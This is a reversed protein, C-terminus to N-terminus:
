SLFSDQTHKLSPVTREAAPILKGIRQMLSQTSIVPLMPFSSSFCMHWRPIHAAVVSRGSYAPSGIKGEGVQEEGKLHTVQRWVVQKCQQQKITRENQSYQEKNQIIQTKTM